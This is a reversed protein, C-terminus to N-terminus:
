RIRMTMRGLQGPAAGRNQRHPAIERATCPFFKESGVKQMGPSEFCFMAIGMTTILVYLRKGAAFSKVYCYGTHNSHLSQLQLISKLSSCLSRLRYLYLFHRCFNTLSSINVSSSGYMWAASYNTMLHFVENLLRTFYM